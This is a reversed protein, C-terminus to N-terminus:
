HSDIATSDPKTGVGQLSENEFNPTVSSSQPNRSPAGELEDHEDAVGVKHVDGFHGPEAGLEIRQLAEIDAPTLTYNRAGVIAGITFFTLAAGIATCVYGWRRQAGVTVTLGWSIAATWLGNSWHFVVSLSGIVYLTALWPNHLVRAISATALPHGDQTSVYFTTDLADLGFSWGWRLTAVHIFIFVLAIYGTIRQLVYRHYGGYRYKGHLRKGSKTYYIGLAAHFAISAWLTIEVFLLAPQSHIWNVEHQFTGLALQFNTFLHMMVFVGVPLIGSLSHLRRLLFYHRDMFSEAKAEAPHSAHESV